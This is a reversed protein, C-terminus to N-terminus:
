SAKKKRAWRVADQVDKGKLSLKEIKGRIKDLALDAPVVKLPTLIIRSGDIEADFYDIGPFFKVIAAPLTLQNKVTKKTLM